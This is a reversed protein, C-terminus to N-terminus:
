TRACARTQHWVEIAKRLSNRKHILGNHKKRSHRIKRNLEDLKKKMRKLKKPNITPSEAREVPPEIFTEKGRKPKLQYPKLTPTSCGAFPPPQLPRPNREELKRLLEPQRPRDPRCRVSPLPSLPARTPRPPRWPAPSWLDRTRPPRPDPIQRPAPIPPPRARLQNNRLLEILEAKRLRSYGGLGRERALAKLEAVRMNEYEM